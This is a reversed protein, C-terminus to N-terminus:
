EQFLSMEDWLTPNWERQMEQTITGLRTELNQNKVTSVVHLIMTFIRKADKGKLTKFAIETVAPNLFFPQGLRCCIEQITALDQSYFAQRLAELRVEQSDWLILNKKFLYDIVGTKGKQCFYYLVTPALKESFLNAVDFAENQLAQTLIRRKLYPDFSSIFKIAELPNMLHYARLADVAFDPDHIIEGMLVGKSLHGLSDQFLSGIIIQKSLFNDQSGSSPARVDKKKDSASSASSLCDYNTISRIIGM